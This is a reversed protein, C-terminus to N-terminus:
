IYIYIYIYLIFLYIFVSVLKFLHFNRVTFELRTEWIPNFFVWFDFSSELFTRLWTKWSTDGKYLFIYISIVIQFLVSLTFYSLFHIPLHNLTYLLYSFSTPNPFFHSLFIKKIFFIPFKRNFYKKSFFIVEFSVGNVHCHMYTIRRSTSM